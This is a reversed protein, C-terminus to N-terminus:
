VYKQISTYSQQCSNSTVNSNCKCNHIRNAVFGGEQLRFPDFFYGSFHLFTTLILLYEAISQKIDDHDINILLLHSISLKVIGKVMVSTTNIQEPLYQHQDYLELHPLLLLIRCHISAIYQSVLARSTPSSIIAERLPSTFQEPNM